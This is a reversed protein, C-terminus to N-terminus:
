GRTTTKQENVLEELLDSPPMYGPLLDGRSTVIGPTGMLGIKRGVEYDHAVPNDACVANTLVAGQKALTLASKRDKSCWVQVNRNWTETDAPGNRPFLVYRVAIGLKNYEAIQSHLKRCYACDVDTFVTVTYKPAAVGFVVMQSVPLSQMLALRADRRREETLNKQDSLDFLDGSIGFRGDASVYVVETGRRIEYLGPISSARVEDPDKVGLRETLRALLAADIGNGLVPQGPAPAALAPEGAPTASEPAGRANRATIAALVFSAGLLAGLTLLRTRIKM